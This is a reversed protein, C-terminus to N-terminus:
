ISIYLKFSFDYSTDIQNRLSRFGYGQITNPCLACTCFSSLCELKWIYGGGQSLEQHFHSTMFNVQHAQLLHSM